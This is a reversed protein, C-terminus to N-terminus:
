IESLLYGISSKVTHLTFYHLPLDFSHILQVQFLRQVQCQNLLISHFNGQGKMGKDKLQTQFMIHFPTSLQQYLTEVEIKVLKSQLLFEPFAYLM